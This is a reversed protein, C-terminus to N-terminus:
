AFVLLEQNAFHYETNVICVNKVIGEDFKKARYYLTGGWLFLTKFVTM